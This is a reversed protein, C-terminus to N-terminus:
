KKHSTPQNNAQHNKKSMGISHHNEGLFIQTTTRVRSYPTGPRSYCEYRYKFFIPDKLVKCINNDAIFRKLYIISRCSKVPVVVPVLLVPVFSTHSCNICLLFEFGVQRRLLIRYLEIYKNINIYICVYYIYLSVTLSELGRTTSFHYVCQSM